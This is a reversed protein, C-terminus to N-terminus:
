PTTYKGYQRGLALAGEWLSLERPIDLVNGIIPYGKPGPPLPSSRTRGWRRVKWYVVTAALIAFPLVYLLNVKAM